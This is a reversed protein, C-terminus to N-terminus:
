HGNKLFFIMETEAHHSQRLTLAITIFRVKHNFRIKGVDGSHQVQSHWWFSFVFAMLILWKETLVTCTTQDLSCKLNKRNYQRCWLDCSLAVHRIYYKRITNTGCVYVSWYTGCWRALLLYQISHLVHQCLVRIRVTRTVTRTRLTPNKFYNESMHRLNHLAKNLM